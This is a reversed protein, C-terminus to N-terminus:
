RDERAPAPTAHTARTAQDRGTVCGLVLRGEADVRAVSYERMWSRVDMSVSGDPRHVPASRAAAVGATAPHKTALRAMQEATPMGVEGSESDLAIVMGHTFVRCPAGPRVSVTSARAGSIFGASAIIPIALKWGMRAIGAVSKMANVETLTLVL